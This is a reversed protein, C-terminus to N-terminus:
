RSAGHTARRVTRTRQRLVANWIAAISRKRGNCRQMWRQRPMVGGAAAAGCGMGSEHGRLVTNGAAAASREESGCRRIGRQQLM